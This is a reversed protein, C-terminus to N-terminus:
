ASLAYAVAQDARMARGEAWAAMFPGGELAAQVEAVDADFVARWQPTDRQGSAELLAEASGFLRASKLYDATLTAVGALGALARPILRWSWGVETGLVLAEKFLIRSEEMDGRQRALLALGCLALGLTIRDGIARAVAASEERFRRAADNDGQSRSVDGLLGLAFALGWRDDIQRAIRASEDCSSRAASYNGDAIEGVARVSLARGTGQLDDVEGFIAASEQAFSRAAEVDNQLIAVRAAALLARGRATSRTATTPLVLLAEVWGRAEWAIAWRAWYLGLAGALRLGLDAAIHGNRTWKLVELLNGSDAELRGAWRVQERGVLKPEAAEALAVFSTAHRQRISELEGSAELQELGFERITELMAFRSEDAAGDEQLLLSKAVLSGLGDLVDVRLDNTGCVAAAADLTCGGAFISLRRLLCQENANLLDYSWAIATRLTQHRTPVDRPGDTLLTLRRELRALIARPSLLRIRAAALEIALPLGDLRRCIEVVAMANEETLAFESKIASARDVFLAVAGYQPMCELTVRRQPDPVALPPVAYEYEGQVRLPERSTVLVSLGPATALLDSVLRAASLVQEFNDLLLLVQKGRVYAKVRELPPRGGADALGVAHAITPAVLEPDSIPGLAVFLFGDRHVQSVASAVQLALRTKGTGAPGTLTLLRTTALREQVEALERDRGVFSSVPIPLTGAIPSTSVAASTVDSRRRAARLAAREVDNLHLAEALRLVTDRYAARRAGRELDSLGRVSLGAQEALEAQTLGAAVRFGRL